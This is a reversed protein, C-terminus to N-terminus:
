FFYKLSNSLLISLRRSFLWLITSLVPRSLFVLRVILFIYFNHICFILHHQGPLPLLFILRQLFDSINFITKVFCTDVEVFDLMKTLQCLCYWSMHHSSSCLCYVRMYARVCECEWVCVCMCVSCFFPIFLLVEWKERLSGGTNTWDCLLPNPVWFDVWHLQWQIYCWRRSHPMDWLEANGNDLNAQQCVYMSLCCVCVSFVAKPKKKRKTQRASFLRWFSDIVYVIIDIIFVHQTILVYDWRSCWTSCDNRVSTNQTCAKISRIHWVDRFNDSCWWSQCWCSQSRIGTIDVGSVVVRGRRSSPQLLHCNQGVSVSPKHCPWSVLKPHLDGSHFHSTQRGPGHCHCHCWWLKDATCHRLRGSIEGHFM